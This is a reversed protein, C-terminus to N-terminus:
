WSYHILLFMVGMGFTILCANIQDTTWLSKRRLGKPTHLHIQHHAYTFYIALGATTLLCFAAAFLEM